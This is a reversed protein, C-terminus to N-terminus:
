STLQAREKKEPHLVGYMDKIKQHTWAGGTKMFYRRKATNPRFYWMLKKPSWLYGASKLAEKHPKTDGSVWIWLGCVEVTLDLNLVANLAAELVEPYNAMVANDRVDVNDLDRVIDYAVNFLKMMETGAPNKDPHFQQAKRRYATKIEKNSVIGSLGLLQLAEFKNM